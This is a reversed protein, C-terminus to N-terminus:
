SNKGCCKKYKKGSKCPCSDNRGIKIPIENEFMNLAMKVELLTPDDDLQNKELIVCAKKAYFLAMKIDKTAYYLGMLNQCTQVISPHDPKLKEERIKLAKKLFSKAKQYEDLKIYLYGLDNYIMSLKINDQNLFVKKNINISKIYFKESDLFKETSEYLGGLNQYISAEQLKYDNNDFIDSEDIYSLAELFLKEAKDYEGQTSYMEALADYFQILEPNNKSLVKKAINLSLLQFKEVKEFNNINRYLIALNRYIMATNFNEVNSIEQNINLAKFLYEENKKYNANHFYLVSLNAFFNVRKYERDNLVILVKSLSEFFLIAEEFIEIYFDNAIYHMGNNFSDIIVEIESFIVKHNLLIYEKIIQHLKYGDNIYNLWGKEVLYNLIEEFEERENEKDLIRELFKLIIEISPLVSLQKLILIEEDDLEDFSFLENLYDNFSEKRNRKITPFEGNKFKEKIIEPTLTKKSKLTKATMEVFFAHCDLYELIEELLVEDEVTYIFNFLEKADSLSLVDLYYQEVDEIEERSTL